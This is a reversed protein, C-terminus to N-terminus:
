KLQPDYEGSTSGNGTCMAAELLVVLTIWLSGTSAPCLFQITFTTELFREPFVTLSLWVNPSNHLSFQQTVIVLWHKHVRISVVSTCINLACGSFPVSLRPAIFQLKLIAMFELTKSNMTFMDPEDPLLNSLM